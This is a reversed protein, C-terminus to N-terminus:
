TTPLGRIQGDIREYSYKKQHLFDELINLMKVMQSFILVRHKQKELAQLLKDLLVLKGSSELRMRALDEGTKGGILQDEM